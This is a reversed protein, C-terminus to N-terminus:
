LITTLTLLSCPFFMSSIDGIGSHVAICHCRKQETVERSIGRAYCEDRGLLVM